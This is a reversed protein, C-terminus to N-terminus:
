FNISLKLGFYVNRPNLFTFFAQNPMDIYQKNEIITNMRGDDVATWQDGSHEFYSQSTKDWYIAGDAPNTVNNIDAVPVIPTFEGSSRYDGPRDEGPINIYSGSLEDGINSPLHLSRMYDNYDNGDVFGYRSSM